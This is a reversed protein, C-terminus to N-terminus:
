KKFLFLFYMTKTTQRKTKYLFLYKTCQKASCSIYQRYTFSIRQKNAKKMTLFKICLIWPMFLNERQFRSYKLIYGLGSGPIRGNQNRGEWKMWSWKTETRKWCSHRKFQCHSLGMFKHGAYLGSKVKGTLWIESKIKRQIESDYPTTGSIANMMTNKRSPTHVYPSLTELPTKMGERAIPAAQPRSMPMPTTCSKGSWTPSYSIEKWKGM